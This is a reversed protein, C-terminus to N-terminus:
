LHREVDMAKHLVRLVSVRDPSVEYFMLHERVRLCRLNEGLDPRAIGIKPYDALRAFAEDIERLYSEAVAEGHQAVSYNLIERLDRRAGERLRVKM